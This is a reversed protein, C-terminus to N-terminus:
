TNSRQKKIEHTFTITPLNIAVGARVPENRAMFIEGTRTDAIAWAVGDASSVLPTFEIQSDVARITIGNINGLRQTYRFISASTSGDIHTAFRGIRKRCVYLACGNLYKSTVLANNKTLGSGIVLNKWTSVFQISYNFRLTERGDKRVVLKSTTEISAPVNTSVFDGSPLETPTGTNDEIRYSTDGATSLKFGVTDIRGYYDGYPVDTQWFGKIDGNDGYVSQAGASYNDEMGFSFSLSNGFATSIVPLSVEAQQQENVYSKVAAINVHNKTGFSAVFSYAVDGIGKSTILAKGDSEIPDGIVALDAYAIDRDYAKRESVEYARWESNIGVYQSLRNFDKSLGVTCYVAGAYIAIGIDSVYYEDGDLLWLQGKKPVLSLDALCYTRTIEANGMRAIAGKLNEGYYRTEVLNAAQGYALTRKFEDPDIALKRQLVRSTFIPTYTIQFTLNPYKGVEPDTNWISESISTGTAAKVINAIAYPVVANGWISKTKFNLGRINKQGVEYYIAFAKSTPYINDFSSLRGYDAGEFLYPTIDAAHGDNIVMLKQVSYIPYKTEIVMNGDTIRAYAEESRVSKWGGVWPETIAGEGGDATNVFNEVTSDLQTAYDEINHSRTEAIYKYRPDSLKAVDTGGLMDYYVIRTDGEREIRPIGHIYGGIQDLIEKLTMNTFAFEPSEIKEFEAAQEPNLKYRPAVGELHTEAVDFVRELVTRINWKPLPQQNPVVTMYFAIKFNSFDEEGRWPKMHITGIYRVVYIGNRNPTFAASNNENSVLTITENLPNTLTIQANEIIYDVAGPVSAYPIITQVVSPVPIEIDLGAPTVFDSNIQSIFENDTM